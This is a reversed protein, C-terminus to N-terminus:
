APVAAPEMRPLVPFTQTSSDDCDVILGDGDNDLLNGWWIGWTPYPVMSISFLLTEADVLASSSSLSYCPSYVMQVTDRCYHTPHLTEQLLFPLM